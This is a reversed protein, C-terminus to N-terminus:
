SLMKIIHIIKEIVVDITTALGQLMLAIGNVIALWTLFEQKKDPKKIENKVEQSNKQHKKQKKKSM